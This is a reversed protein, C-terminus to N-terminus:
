TILDHGTRKHYKNMKESSDANVHMVAMSFILVLGLALVGKMKDDSRRIRLVTVCDITKKKLAVFPIPKIKWANNLRKNLKKM